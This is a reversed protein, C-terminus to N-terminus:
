SHATKGGSSLVIRPVTAALDAGLIM